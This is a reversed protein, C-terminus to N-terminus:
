RYFIGTGNEYDQIRSHTGINLYNKVIINETGVITQNLYDSYDTNSANVYGAFMLSTDNINKVNVGVENITTKTQANTKEYTMGNEDFTGSTSIVASVKVGNVGVGNAIQQVETKTYTDTQLQTVSSRIDTIESLPAYDSFKGLM